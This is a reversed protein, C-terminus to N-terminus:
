EGQTLIKNSITVNEIKSDSELVSFRSVISFEFFARNIIKNDVAETTFQIISYNPLIESDLAKLYDQCDLGKLYERVKIAENFAQISEVNEDNRKYFDLQFNWQILSSEKINTLDSNELPIWEKSQSTLIQSNVLSAIAIGKVFDAKYDTGGIIVNYSTFRKLLEYIHKLEFM